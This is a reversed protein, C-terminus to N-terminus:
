SAEIRDVWGRMEGGGLSYRKFTAALIMASVNTTWCSYLM